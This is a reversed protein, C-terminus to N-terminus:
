QATWLIEGQTRPENDIYVTKIRNAWWDVVVNVYFQGLVTNTIYFDDFFAEYIVANKDKESQFVKRPKELTQCIKDFQYTFYARKKAKVIHQFWTNESLTIQRGRYDTLVCFGNEFVPRSM